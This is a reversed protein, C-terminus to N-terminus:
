FLSFHVYRKPNAQIDALLSDASQTTRILNQYLAPDKLLMNLSGEEENVKTMFAKLDKVVASLDTVVTELEAKNLKGAMEAIAQTSIQVNNLIQPMDKSMMVDLKESSSRIASASQRMETLTERILPDGVLANFNLLLSDLSLTAKNLNPILQDRVKSLIDGTEIGMITDRPRILEKGQAGEPVVLVISAGGLPNSDISARTGEPLDLDSNLAVMLVAGGWRKYDFDINRVNGVKYGNLTVKSSRDIGKLNQFTMYYLNSQDFVHIGKLFNFGFYFMLLTAVVTIGILMARGRNTFKNRM